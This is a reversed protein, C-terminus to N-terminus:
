KNSGSEDNTNIVTNQDGGENSITLNRLSLNPANPNLGKMISAMQNPNVATESPTRKRNGFTGLNTVKVDKAVEKFGFDQKEKEMKVKEAEYVTRVGIQEHTDEIKDLIMSIVEKLEAVLESDKPARLYQYRDVRPRLLSPVEFKDTDYREVEKVYRILCNVASIYEQIALEECGPNNQHLLANGINYHAESIIRM